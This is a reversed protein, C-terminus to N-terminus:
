GARRRFPASAGYLLKFDSSEMAGLTTNQAANNRAATSTVGGGLWTGGARATRIM